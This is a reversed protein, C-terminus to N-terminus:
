RAPMAKELRTVPRPDCAVVETSLVHDLLAAFQRDKRWLTDRVWARNAQATTAPRRAVSDVLRKLAPSTIQECAVRATLVQVQILEDVNGM